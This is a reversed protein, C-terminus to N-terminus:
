VIQRGCTRIIETYLLAFWYLLEDIVLSFIFESGGLAVLNMNREGLKYHFTRNRLVVFLTSMSDFPVRFLIEGEDEIEMKPVSPQIVSVIQRKIKEITDTDLGAVSFDFKIGNLNGQKSLVPVSKELVKLEGEKGDAVLSKLFKHSGEFNIHSLAYLMPFAVSIHELLRYLYLFSETFRRERRAVLCIILEDRVQEFFRKNRIGVSELLKTYDEINASSDFIVKVIRAPRHARMHGLRLENNRFKITRNTQGDTVDANGVLLRVVEHM